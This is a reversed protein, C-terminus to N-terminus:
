SWIEEPKVLALGAATMFRPRLQKTPQDLNGFNLAQWPSAVRAAMVLENTFFEGLGPVNSGSGVILVQELRETETFRDTYYRIVKKTENVIKMLSPRLSATIKAQRPGSSLGSLVKFQHATELPIDMRKAIDLTLTNGGINLGGTVRIAKDFIAIDVNAPGIDVIVTPLGGEKTYELLRAIASVSPEIMAVELGSQKTVVLINDIFQRPVACMLVILEKKTRSIIQHDIYLNEPPMPIYQEAELIVANKINNEHDTPLSFTRAFTRATPIGVVARNSGLKGTINDVTLMEAMKEALYDQSENSDDRMKSPDLDITGYGHVLMKSNDVSVVRLSTKDIDLGIIPKTKYFLDSM